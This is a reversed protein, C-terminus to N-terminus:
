TWNKSKAYKNIKMIAENYNDANLTSKLEKLAKFGANSLTVQYKHEKARSRQQKVWNNMASYTKEDLKMIISHLDFKMKDTLEVYANSILEIRSKCEKIEIECAEQNMHAPFHQVFIRDENTSIKRELQTVEKEIYEKSERIGPKFDRFECFEDKLESNALRGSPVSQKSLYQCMLYFNKENVKRARGQKPTDVVAKQQARSTNTM